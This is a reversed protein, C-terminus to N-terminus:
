ATRYLCWDRPTLTWYFTPSPSKLSALGVFVMASEQIDMTYGNHLRTFPLSLERPCLLYDPKRHHRGPGMTGPPLVGPLTPTVAPLVLLPLFARPDLLSVLSFPEVSPWGTHHLDADELRPGYSDRYNGHRTDTTLAHVTADPPYTPELTAYNDYYRIDPVSCVPEVVRSAHPGRDISMSVFRTTISAHRSHVELFTRYSRDVSYYETYTNSATVTHNVSLNCRSSSSHYSEVASRNVVFLGTTRRRDVVHSRCYSEFALRRNAYYSRYSASRCSSNSVSAHKTRSDRHSDSITKDDINYTTVSCKPMCRDTTRNEQSYGEPFAVVDSHEVGDHSSSVSGSSHETLFVPPSPVNVHEERCMSAFRCYVALFGVAVPNSYVDIVTHPLEYANPTSAVCNPKCNIYHYTDSLDHETNPMIDNSIGQLIKANNYEHIKKSMKNRNLVSDVESEDENMTEQSLNDSIDGVIGHLINHCIMDSESMMDGENGHLINDDSMMDGEYEHLINDSMTDGENEHLINVDSMTDGENDHLINDSMTDGKNEHLINDSMTDGENEHLINVDSMTDGENEHLINDDSMTDSENEHLINDDSMTDVENEHLINDDSMTDVENEHLINDDSMTDGENEHLINDDSMTDGENEHLINDDSMRDGENEHLINDDSEYGSDQYGHNSVSLPAGCEHESVTVDCHSFAESLLCANSTDVIACEIENETKDDLCVTPNDREREQKYQIFSGNTHQPQTLDTPQHENSDHYIFELGFDGFTILGKSPRVMVDNHEMFPAGVLIDGRLGLGVFADDAIVLGDFWLNYDEYSLVFSSSGIVSSRPIPFGGVSPINDDADSESFDVSDYDVVDFEIDCHDVVSKSVMNITCGSRVEVQVFCDSEQQGQVVAPFHPAPARRRKSADGFIPGTVAIACRQTSAFGYM